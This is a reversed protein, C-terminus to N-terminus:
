GAMGMIMLVVVMWTDTLAHVTGVYMLSHSRLYIMGLVIGLFLAFIAYPLSGWFLMFAAGLSASFLVARRRGLLPLVSRLVIGRFLVEELYGWMAMVPIIILTARGIQFNEWFRYGLFVAELCAFVVPLLLVAVVSSTRLGRPSMVPLRVNHYHAGVALAAVVLFLTSGVAVGTSGPFLVAVLTLAQVLVVSSAAQAVEKQEVYMVVAISSLLGSVLLILASLIATESGILRYFYIATCALIFPLSLLTMIPWRVEEQVQFSAQKTSIM